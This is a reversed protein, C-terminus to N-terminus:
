NGQTIVKDIVLHYKQEVPNEKWGSQGTKTRLFKHCCWWINGQNKPQRQQHCSTNEVKKGTNVPTQFSHAQYELRKM